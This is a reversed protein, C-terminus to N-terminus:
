YYVTAYGGPAYKGSKVYLDVRNDRMCAGCVDLVIAKYAKGKIVLTIQDYLKFTKMNTKGLRTSATAVVLMGKYTYWGNENLQFHKSYLGSATMDKSKCEDNAWYSTLRTTFTRAKRKEEAEKKKKEEEAKKKAEEEEKIMQDITTAVSKTIKDSLTDTVVVEEKQQEDFGRNAKLVVTRSNKLIEGLLCVFVAILWLVACIMFVIFRKNKQKKM